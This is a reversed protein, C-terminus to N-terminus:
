PSEASPSRPKGADAPKPKLKQELRKIIKEDPRSEDKALKLAKTWSELAKQPKNLSDYCDGLHDWVTADEGAPLAVAKELYSLAEEFKGRKFLVWGMSDLYAANEPEAKLAKRIMQEAQELKKGQDAYLYGLDNNVSPDDPNDAFFQELVEEGKKLNGQQVYINSLSFRCLRVVDDADPYTEIVTNFIEIARDWQRSHYYIWGEQYHLRPQAPLLKRAEGLAALAQDTHGAFEQAVSLRFLFMPKAGALSPDDVAEQFVKAAQDYREAELLHTGLEEYIVRAQSPRASLAFRFFGVAADTRSAAASIKALIFSRPFDLTPPQNKARDRGTAILGDLLKEDQIVAQFERDLRELGSGEKLANALADLLADPKGQRRYVAALGVYGDPDQSGQLTKKYLAEANDLRNQAVYQEALFYQLTGNRPDKEALTELRSILEESRGLEKLVDALLEYAARGKSQLQADFYKQLEALAKEPQKTKRYVRALHFSLNGAHGKGEQAAREFAKVALEFREADLFVQGIREYSSAPDAELARRTRFDLDYTKPDVLADFLVEYADAAKKTEGVASYLIALDRNLTVFAASHKELRSSRVAKELFEIAQPVKHKGALQVSLMRLLRYDDPDLEVAKSGYKIADEVQDLRFALPVLARYIEIANPDLAVAKRYADLAGKFDNRKELLQGTMYWATADVRDRERDTRPKRPHFLTAPEDLRQLRYGDKLLQGAEPTRPSPADAPVSLCDAPALLLVVTGTALVIALMNHRVIGM